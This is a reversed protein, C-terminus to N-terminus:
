AMQWIIKTNELNGAVQWIINANGYKRGNALDVRYEYQKRGTVMNDKWKGYKGTVRWIKCSIKIKGAVEVKVKGAM